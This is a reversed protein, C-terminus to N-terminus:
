EGLIINGVCVLYLFVPQSARVIRSNRKKCTWTWFYLAAIVILFFFICAIARTYPSIFNLQVQTPPIDSPPQTTGDNYIYPEVANWYGENYIMSNVPILRVTDDNIGDEVVMNVLRFLTTNSVRSGTTPDLIVLGSMGEFSINNVLTDFFRKGDLHLFSEENANTTINTFAQCAAMGLMITAEYTFPVRGDTLPNLFSTDNLFSLADAYAPDQYHPLLAHLPHTSPQSSVFVQKLSLLEQAFRDYLQNGPLGGIAEISGVGRYALYLPSNPEFQKAALNAVIGDSFTWVYYSEGQILGLEYAQLMLADNLAMNSGGFHAVFVYRYQLEKLTQLAQPINSGDREMSIHRIQLSPPNTTNSSQQQQQQQQQLMAEQLESAFANGFSDNTALIALHSIGLVSQYYQALVQATGADSPITRGFLPYLSRDNLDSSTSMPSIQPYGQFSTLTATTQSISSRYAGLVACPSPLRIPTTTSVSNETVNSEDDQSERQKGNNEMEKEDEDNQEVIREILANLVRGPNYQTNLFEVGFQIPCDQLQPSLESIISEQETATTTTGKRGQNLHQIALYTVFASEYGSVIPKDEVIFPFLSLFHCLAESDDLSPHTLDLNNKKSRTTTATTTNSSTTTTTSM